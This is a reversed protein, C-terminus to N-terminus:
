PRPGSSPECHTRVGSPSECGAEWIYQCSCTLGRQTESLACTQPLDGPSRCLPMPLTPALPPAARVGGYVVLEAPTLHRAVGTQRLTVFLDGSGMAAVRLANRCDLVFPGVGGAANAYGCRAATAGSSAGLWVEFSGLFAQYVAGDGRNYVAVHSPVGRVRVSLWANVEPLTAVISGLDGDIANAAPYDASYASSAVASDTPLAIM